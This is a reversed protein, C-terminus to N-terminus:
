KPFDPMRMWHTPMFFEDSCRDCWGFEDLWRVFDICGSRGVIIETGDKPATDIPQWGMM